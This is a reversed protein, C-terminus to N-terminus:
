RPGVLDALDWHGSTTTRVAGCECRQLIETIPAPPGVEEGTVRNVLCDFLQYTATSVWQHRHWLKM